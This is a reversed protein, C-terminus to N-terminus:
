LGPIGSSAHTNQILETTPKSWARSDTLVWQNCKLACRPQVAPTVLSRSKTTIMSDNQQYLKTFFSRTDFCHKITFNVPHKLPTDTDSKRDQKIQETNFDQM